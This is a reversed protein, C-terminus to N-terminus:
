SGEPRHRVMSVSASDAPAAISLSSGEATLGLTMEPDSIPPLDGDLEVRFADSWFRVIDGNRLDVSQVRQDNVYTGNLSGSDAVMARGDTWVLTAHRRSVGEGKLVVNNEPLRGVSTTPNTIEMTLWGFRALLVAEGEAQEAPTLVRHIRFRM